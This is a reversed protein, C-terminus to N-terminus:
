LSLRLSHILKYSSNKETMVTQGYGVFPSLFFTPLFGCIIYIMMMTGSQTSLTIHWMIAYMVLSSGFLSITQSTIFLATDKKWTTKLQPIM